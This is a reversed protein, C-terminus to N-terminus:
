QLVFYGFYQRSWFNVRNTCGSPIWSRLVRVQALGQYPCNAPIAADLRTGAPFGPVATTVPQDCVGGAFRFQVKAVNTLKVGHLRLTTGKRAGVRPWAEAVVPRLLSPQLDNRWVTVMDDFADNVLDLDGDQDIDVPVLDQSDPAPKYAGLLTETVDAFTGVLPGDASNILGDGNTDTGLNELMRPLDDVVQLALDLDGDGDWDLLAPFMAYDMGVTSAMLLDQAPTHIAPSLSAVPVRATYQDVMTGNVNMQNILLWPFNTRGTQSYHTVALDADGDNDIDGQALGFSGCSLHNPDNNTDKVADLCRAPLVPPVLASSELFTGAPNGNVGNLFLLDDTQTVSTVDASTAAFGVTTYLDLAGNNDFDALLDMGLGRNWSPDYTGQANKMKSAAVDRFWFGTYSPQGINELYRWGFSYQGIPQPYAPPAILPLPTGGLPFLNVFADIDGDNDLDGAVARDALGPHVTRGNLDIRLDDVQSFSNGVTDFGFVGSGSNVLVISDPTANGYAPIPWQASPNRQSALLADLDGDQDFDAFVGDEMGKPQLRGRYNSTRGNGFNGPAFDNHDTFATGLLSTVLYNYGRSTQLADLVGDGDADGFDLGYSRESGPMSDYSKTDIFSGNWDWPNGAPAAMGKNRYLDTRVGSFRNGGVTLADLYTGGTFKAFAVSKVWDFQIGTFGLLFPGPPTWNARNRLIAVNSGQGFATKNKLIDRHNVIVLDLWGDPTNSGASVLDLLLVQQTLPTTANQENQTGLFLIAKEQWSGTDYQYIQMPHDDAAALTLENGFGESGANGLVIEPRGTQDLNGVAVSRTDTAQGANLIVRTFFGLGNNILIYDESETACGSGRRCRNAVVLDLDTDGDLDAAAIETTAAGPEGPMRAATQDTFCGTGDNILLINPAGTYNDGQKGIYLDAWGDGTLDAFAVGSSNGAAAAAPIRPAGGPCAPEQSVDFWRNYIDAADRWMLRDRQADQAMSQQDPDSDLDALGYGLGATVYLDECTGATHPVVRTSLCGFAGRTASVNEYSLGAWPVAPVTQPNQHHGDISLFFTPNFYQHTGQAPDVTRNSYNVYLQLGKRYLSDSMLRRTQQGTLATGEPPNFQAANFLLAEPYSGTQNDLTVLDRALVFVTNGPDEWFQHRGWVLSGDGSKYFWPTLKAPNPNFPEVPYCGLSIQATAPGAFLAASLVLLGIRCMRRM